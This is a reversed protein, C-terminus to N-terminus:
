ETRGRGSWFNFQAEARSAENRVQEVYEPKFLAPAKEAHLVTAIARGYRKAWAQALNTTTETMENEKSTETM